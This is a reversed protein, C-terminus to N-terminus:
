QSVKARIQKMKRNFSTHVPKCDEEDTGVVSSTSTAVTATPVPIEILRRSMTLRGKITDETAGIRASLDYRFRRRADDTELQWYEMYKARWAEM